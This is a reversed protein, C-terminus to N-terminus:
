AIGQIFVIMSLLGVSLTFSIPAASRVFLGFVVVNNVPVTMNFNVGVTENTRSQQYTANYAPELNGRLSIPRYFEEDRAEWQGWVTIQRFVTAYAVLPRVGCSAVDQNLCAVVACFKDAFQSGGNFAVLTETYKEVM